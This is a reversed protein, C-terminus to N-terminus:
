EIISQPKTRNLRITLHGSLLGILIHQYGSWLQGTDPLPRTLVPELSLSPSCPPSLLSPSYPIAFLSCHIPSRSFLSPLLSSLSFFLMKQKQRRGKAKM